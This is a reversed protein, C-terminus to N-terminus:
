THNRFLFYRRIADCLCVEKCEDNYNIVNKGGDDDSSDVDKWHEDNKIEIKLRMQKLIRM